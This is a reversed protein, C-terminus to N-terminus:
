ASLELQDVRRPDPAWAPLGRQDLEVHEILQSVLYSASVGMAEALENLKRHMPVPVRAVVKAKGPAEPLPMPETYGASRRSRTGYPRGGPSGLGPATTGNGTSSM